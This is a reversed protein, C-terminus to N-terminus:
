NNNLREGIVPIDKRYWYISWVSTIFVFLAMGFLTGGDDMVVIGLITLHSLIAGAMVGAGIMAGLWITRPVLLLIAAILEAVGSAYRGWPEMGVTEFIYISEPAGSFKFFLTQLLIIAAVIRLIWSLTTLRSNM